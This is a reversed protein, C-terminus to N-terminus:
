HVSTFNDLSIFDTKGKEALEIRKNIFVDVCKISDNKESWMILMDIKEFGAKNEYDTFNILRNNIKQRFSRVYDNVRALRILQYDKYEVDDIVRHKLLYDLCTEDMSLDIDAKLRRVVSEIKFCDSIGFYLNGCSNCVEMQNTNHINEIVTINHIGRPSCLCSHYGTAYYYAVMRWEKRSKSWDNSESLAIIRKKLRSPPNEITKKIETM